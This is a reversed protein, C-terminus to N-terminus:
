IDQTASCSVCVWSLQVHICMGVPKCIEAMVDVACWELTLIWRTVAIGSQEKGLAWDRNCGCQRAEFAGSRSLGRM